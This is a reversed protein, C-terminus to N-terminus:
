IKHLLSATQGAKKSKPVIIAIKTEQLLIFYVLVSLIILFNKLRCLSQAISTADPIIEKVAIEQPPPPPLPSLGVGVGVVSVKLTLGLVRVRAPPAEPVMFMVDFTAQVTLAELPYVTDGALPLLLPVTLTVALAEAVPPVMVTLPLLLVTETVTLEGDAAAMVTLGSLMEMGAGAPFPVKVIFQLPAHVIVRGFGLGAQSEFTVGELPVPFAVTVTLVAM